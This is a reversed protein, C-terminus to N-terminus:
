WSDPAPLEPKDEVAFMKINRAAGATQWTAIGLPKSLDVEMRVDIRRGKHAINVLEEDDVWAEIRNSTVRLRINYWKGKEFELVRTTENNAADYYDINSLGCMSGGWGGLVLSCCNADVPFTLACFFDTGDVRMAELTIEYNMRTPLPGTWNIGTMDHGMEMIIAQDKIHVKGQGGFDTISWHGLKKGDFLSGDDALSKNEDQCGGAAIAAILIVAALRATASTNSIAKNNAQM